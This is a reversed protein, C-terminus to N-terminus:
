CSIRLTLMMAPPYHESGTGRANVHFHNLPLQEVADLIFHVIHDAPLWERLDCPLFLPTWRRGM